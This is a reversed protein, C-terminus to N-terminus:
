IRGEDYFKYAIEKYFLAQVTIYAPQYTYAAIAASLISGLLGAIGNDGFVGGIMISIIICLLIWGIFSLNILLLDTCHGKMLTFSEKLAEFGKIGYEQHLYTMAFMRLNIWIMVFAFAFLLVFLLIGSLASLGSVVGTIPSVSYPDSLLM